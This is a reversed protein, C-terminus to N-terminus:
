DDPLLLAAPFDELIEAARLRGSASVRKGTFADRFNGAAEEPIEIATDRWVSEGLPLEGQPALEMCFRVIVTVIAERGLLRAFAFIHGERAGTVTLPLYRGDGFVPAFNKRAELAKRILFLKRSGDSGTQLLAEPGKGGTEASLMRRLEYDVPRRNDPDVLSLDRLETGQYFDPFGPATIKLLTFSLSSLMGYFAITESFQKLEALFEPAHDTSLIKGIFNLVGEEYDQDPKIWATHVKAERIAKVAYNKVRDILEPGIGESVPYIGVLTQYLLYEDNNDPIEGGGSKHVRNMGSWRRVKEIWDQTCETLVNIRLRADEGRKTDHSSGANMTGPYDRFRHELFSHLQEASNGSKDLSGGVENLSLLPVYVYMFTDEFGKAMLPGTFQQFRLVFDDWRDKTADDIHEPYSRLLFNEIYDLEYLLSPMRERSLSLAEQIYGADEKRGAEDTIYTRYVPLHIMVEMLARKLSQIPIDIGHRDHGYVRRLYRALNELDGAMHNTIILRKKDFFLERIRGSSGSFARYFSVLESRAEPKCFLATGENLFDYGTTGEIPWRPPLGEGTHLIKEVYVPIDGLEERLRLLYRGPEYLGDIHDIRLGDIRGERILSFLLRHCHDFVERREIKLCILDNISFFRRYNIEENSVKWFSLRFVQKWLLENLRNFSEAEGARGNFIRINETIFGRVDHNGSFLEWLMRKIFGVKDYRILADEEEELSELVYLVGLLKLFEPNERGMGDELSSLRHTIIDAYTEILLPFINDYYHVAFGEQDYSLRIEGNELVEGYLSGLFPALVKARMLEDHHDWQIDFFSYYSSMSGNEFIDRILPNEASYAMHNPVFDQIWKIGQAQAADTLAYFEEKSGLEPNLQNHDAVDYGHGSGHVPKFVPSAYIHSIGLDALYPLINRADNFGFEPCFQLRYSAAPIM